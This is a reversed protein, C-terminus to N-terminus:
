APEATPQDIADMSGCIAQVFGAGYQPYPDIAQVVFTDGGWLLADPQFGPAPGRLRFKTVISLHRGMRQEEPLRMLDNNGTVTIVGFADINEPAVVSRGQANVSEARRVVTFTDTLEPDLLVDSVDLFAM